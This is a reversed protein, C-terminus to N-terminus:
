LLQADEFPFGKGMLVKQGVKPITLNLSLVFSMVGATQTKSIISSLTATASPNQYFTNVSVHNPLDSEVSPDRKRKGLSARTASSADMLEAAYVLWHEMSGISVQRSESAQLNGNLAVAAAGLHNQQGSADSFVTTGPM